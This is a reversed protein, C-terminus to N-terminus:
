GVKNQDDRQLQAYKAKLRRRESQTDQEASIRPNIPGFEIAKVQM